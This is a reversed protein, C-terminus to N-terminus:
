YPITRVARVRAPMHKFLRDLDFEGFVQTYAMDHSRETSSWYLDNPEFRDPMTTCAAQLEARSPLYFDTHGDKEYDDAWKAAPHSRRSEMLARTNAAGDYESRANPENAGLGGWTVDVAEDESIILHKPQTGVHDPIVGVYYGGQGPWYAGIAPPQLTAGQPAETVTM